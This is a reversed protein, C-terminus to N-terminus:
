RALIGGAMVRDSPAARRRGAAVVDIAEKASSVEVTASAAAAPSARSTSSNLHQEALDDKMAAARPSGSRSRPSQSQSRAGGAEPHMHM